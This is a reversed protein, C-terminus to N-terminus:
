KFIKRAYTYAIPFAYLIAAVKVLLNDFLIKDLTDFGTHFHCLMLVLWLFLLCPIIYGKKIERKEYDTIFDKRRREITYYKFDYVNRSVSLAMTTFLHIILIGAAVEFLVNVLYEVSM